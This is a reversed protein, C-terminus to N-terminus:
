FRVGIYLGNRRDDPSYARADEASTVGPRGCRSCGFLGTDCRCRAKKTPAPLQSPIASPQLGPSSPELVESLFRWAGSCSPNRVIPNEVLYQHDDFGLAQASLAPWHTACVAVVVLAILLALAATDAVIARNEARLTGAEIAGTVKGKRRDKRAKKHGRSGM